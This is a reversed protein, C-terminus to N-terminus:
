KIEITSIGESLMEYVQAVDESHMRICGMSAQTGITQPEITGHIGLGDLDATREEIGKLGIWREGIPNEPNDASYFARTRPNVWTPNVLKSHQRVKFLGIPTSNYEGLGVRYSRVFVQENGDGLYMDIRYSEKDVIAHFPGTILKLSQGPRIGSAHSIGNIRQIFRWDVLLGMNNVIGSLTDGGQIIYEIAYSDGNAIEPSFVLSDSIDTLVGRLQSEEADTLGGSRMTASLQLRAKTLNGQDLSQLGDNFNPPAGVVVSLPQLSTPDFGTTSPEELVAVNKVPTEQAISPEDSTPLSSDDLNSDPWFMFAGGALILIVIFWTVSRRVRHRRYMGGRNSNGGQSPLAM